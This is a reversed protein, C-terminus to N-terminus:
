YHERPKKMCTMYSETISRITYNALKYKKRSNHIMENLINELQNSTIYIFLETIYVYICTHLHM